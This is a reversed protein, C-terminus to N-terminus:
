LLDYDIFEKPISTLIDKAKLKLEDEDFAHEEEYM